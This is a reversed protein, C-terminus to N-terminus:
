VEKGELRAIRKEHDNIVQYADKMKAFLTKFNGAAIRLQEFAIDLDGHLEAKTRESFWRTATLAAAHESLQHEKRLKAVDQQWRKFYRTVRKQFKTQASQNRAEAAERDANARAEDAAERERRRERERREFERDEEYERRRRIEEAAREATELVDIEQNVLALYRTRNRLEELADKDPM